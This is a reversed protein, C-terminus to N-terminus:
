QATDASLAPYSITDLTAAHDIDPQGQRSYYTSFRCVIDKIYPSAIRVGAGTYNEELTNQNASFVKRFNLMGGEFADKFGPLWHHYLNRNNKLAEKLAKDRKEKKTAGQAIETVTHALDDVECFLISDTKISGNNRRALDCAPSLIVFPRKSISCKIVSGTKIIDTADTTVYMEEPLHMHDTTESLDVLHNITFRLLSSETDVKNKAYDTWADINPVVSSYFVANMRNEIVGRGGIISLLGTRYISEFTNYLDEPKADDRKYIGICRESRIVKEPTGTFVAMPIRYNNYIYDIFNNGDEQEAERNLKIDIIAGHIDKSIKNHAESLNVCKILNVKCGNKHNHLAAADEFMALMNDDDELLIIQLDDM